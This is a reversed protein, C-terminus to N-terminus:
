QAKQRLSFCVIAAASAANLSEAHPDHVPSPISIKQTLYKLVGPSIGRSENGIVVIGNQIAPLTTINEGVLLTGLVPVNKSPNKLIDELNEYYIKVRAISGMTAQVVKPNYLDVCNESCILHRFGFWDATRIITGLNGPDSIGDLALVLDTTLIGPSFSYAPIKFVGLIGEPSTMSSIQEMEKNKIVVSKSIPKNRLNWQETSYIGRCEFHSHLLEQVLKSGEAVFERHLNRYKKIRLSRIHKVTTKSFM